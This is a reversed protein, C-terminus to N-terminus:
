IAFLGVGTSSYLDWKMCMVHRMEYVDRTCTENWVCWTDWKMCMVHRKDTEKRILQTEKTPRKLLDKKYTEKTLTKISCLTSKFSLLLCALVPPHTCMEKWILVSRKEYSYLDRKMCMVGREDTKKWLLQTEKTPRKQLERKYTEKM